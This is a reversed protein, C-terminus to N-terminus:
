KSNDGHEISLEGLLMRGENSIFYRTQNNSNLRSEILKKALLSNICSDVDHKNLNSEKKLGSVSRYVFRGSSLTSLLKFEAATVGKKKLAAEPVETPPVEPEIAAEEIEKVQKGINGVQQLVKSYINELFNRSFVAALICFGSFIFLKDINKQAEILLNSSIMNLFVPVIMAAVIGLVVSKILKKGESENLYYSAFGGLVGASLMILAITMAYLGNSMLLAAAMSQTVM